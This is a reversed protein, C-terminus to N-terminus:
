AATHDPPVLNARFKKFAPLVAYFTMAHQSQPINSLFTEAAL